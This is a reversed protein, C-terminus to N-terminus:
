AEFIVEQLNGLQQPWHHHGRLVSWRTRTVLNTIKDVRQGAYVVTVTEDHHVKQTSGDQQVEDEEWYLTLRSRSGPRGEPLTYM